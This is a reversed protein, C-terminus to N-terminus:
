LENLLQEFTKLKIKGQKALSVEILSQKLSKLFHDKAIIAKISSRKRLKM